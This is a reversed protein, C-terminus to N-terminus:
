KYNSDDLNNMFEAFLSLSLSLLPHMEWSENKGEQKQLRTKIRGHLPTARSWSAFKLEVLLIVRQILALLFLSPSLSLFFEVLVPAVLFTPVNRLRRRRPATRRCLPHHPFLEVAYCALAVYYVNTYTQYITLHSSPGLQLSIPRSVNASADSSSAVIRIREAAPTGPIGVSGDWGGFPSHRHRSSRKKGEKKWGYSIDRTGAGDATQRRSPAGSKSSPERRPAMRGPRPPSKQM